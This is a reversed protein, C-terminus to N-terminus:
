LRRGICESLVEKRYVEIKKGAMYGNEWNERIDLDFGAELLAQKAVDEANRDCFEMNGALVRATGKPQRQEIM